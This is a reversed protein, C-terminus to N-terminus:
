NDRAGEAIWDHIVQVTAESLPPAGIPMRSGQLGSGRLKTLLASGCPDGAVVTKSGATTGGARLGAWSTLDLGGNTFGAPMGGQPDHCPLCHVAFVPQYIDKKFSVTRQPDSDGSACTAQMPPGLDPEWATCGVASVAAAGLLGPLWRRWEITRKLQSISPIM